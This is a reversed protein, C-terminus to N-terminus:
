LWNIRIREVLKQWFYRNGDEFKTYVFKILRWVMLGFVFSVVHIQWNVMPVMGYLLLLFLLWGMDLRRDVYWKSLVAFYMASCGITLPSSLVYDGGDFLICWSEPMDSLSHVYISPSCTHTYLHPTGWAAPVMCAVGSSVWGVGMVWARPNLMIFALCNVALHWWSAHLFHFVFPAYWKMGCGVGAMARAEDNAYIYLFANVAAFFLVFAHNRCWEGLKLANEKRKERALPCIHSFKRNERGENPIGPVKNGM